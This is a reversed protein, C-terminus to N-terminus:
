VTRKWNRRRTKWHVDGEEEETRENWYYCCYESGEGAEECDVEAWDDDDGGVVGEAGAGAGGFGM